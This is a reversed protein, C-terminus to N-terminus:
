LWGNVYTALGLVAGAASCVFVLLSTPLGQEPSQEDKEARM